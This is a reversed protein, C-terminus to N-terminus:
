APLADLNAVYIAHNASRKRSRTVAGVNRLVCLHYSAAPLPLESSMALQELTLQKGKTLERLLQKRVPNHIAVELPSAMKSEKGRRKKGRKKRQDSEKPSEFGSVAFTMPFCESGAGEARREVSEVEIADVEEILRRLAATFKTWGIEDMSGAKWYFTADERSDFTDAAVARLSRAIFDQLGAVRVGAQVSKGLAKWNADTVLGRRSGRYVHEHSGRVPVEEVLEICDFELLRRFHYSVSSLPAGFERAYQSPSIPRLNAVALIACRMPHGLAKTLRHDILDATLAEARKNAASGRQGHRGKTAEGAERSAGSSNLQLPEEDNACDFCV